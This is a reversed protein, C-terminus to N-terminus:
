QSEKRRVLLEMVSWLLWAAALVAFLISDAVFVLILNLHVMLINFQNATV